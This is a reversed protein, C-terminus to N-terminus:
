VHQQAVVMAARTHDAETFIPSKGYFINCARASLGFRAAEEEEEEEEQTSKETVL